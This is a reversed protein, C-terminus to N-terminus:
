EDFLSQVSDAILNVGVVLSAIAMADFLVLWWYGSAIYGYNSAISLGWDASRPQIGSGIFSLTAIAFIAYGLFADEFRVNQDIFVALVFGIALCGVIFLVGFLGIHWVSLVFRETNFLREYQQLGVFDFIPLM